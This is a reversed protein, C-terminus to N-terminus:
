FTSLWTHFAEPSQLVPWGIIEEAIFPKNDIWLIKRVPVVRNIRKERPMRRPRSNHTTWPYGLKKDIQSTYTTVDAVPFALIIEKYEGIDKPDVYEICTFPGPETFGKIIEIIEYPLTEM